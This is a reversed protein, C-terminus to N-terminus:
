SRCVRALVIKLYETGWEVDGRQGSTDPSRAVESAPAGWLGRPRKAPPSAAEAQSSTSPLDKKEPSSRARMLKDLFPSYKSAERNPVYIDGDGAEELSEKPAPPNTSPSSNARRDIIASPRAGHPSGEAPGVRTTAGDAGKGKEVSGGAGSRPEKKSASKKQRETM